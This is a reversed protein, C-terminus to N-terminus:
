LSCAASAIEIRFVLLCVQYRGSYDNDGTYNNPWVGGYTPSPRGPTAYVQYSTVPQLSSPMNLGKKDPFLEDADLGQIKEVKAAAPRFPNRTKRVAIKFGRLFVSGSQNRFVDDDDADCEAFDYRSFWYKPSGERDSKQPVFELCVNEQAHKFSAVGWARAKDFGTIFYIAGPPVGRALPGNVYNCWSHAYKAAYAEFRAYQQHDSRKAGEPLILLAGQTASSSFSLGAGVEKPVGSNIIIHSSCHCLSYFECFQLKDPPIRFLPKAFIAPSVSSVPAQKSSMNATQFGLRM